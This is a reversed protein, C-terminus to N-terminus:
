VLLTLVFICGIVALILLVWFFIGFALALVDILAQALDRAEFSLCAAKLWLFIASARRLTMRRGTADRTEPPTPAIVPVSLFTRSPIRLTM